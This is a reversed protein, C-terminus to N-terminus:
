PETRLGRQTAPRAEIADVWRKVGPFKALLEDDRRPGGLFPFAAIDAISYDGLLFEHDALRDEMLALYREIEGQFNNIAYEDQEPLLFKFRNRGNFAMGIDSIAFMIWELAEARKAGGGQPMLKGTKEALYFLIAPSGYVKAAEGNGDGDVIVPVKGIPSIAKFEVTNQADERINIWHVTYPLELEELTISVKWCNPTAFMYCDIM